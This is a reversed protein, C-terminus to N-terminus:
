CDPGIHKCITFMDSGGTRSVDCIPAPLQQSSEGPREAMYVVPQSEREQWLKHLDYGFTGHLPTTGKTVVCYVSSKQKASRTTHVADGKCCLVNM